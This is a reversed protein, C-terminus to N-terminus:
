KSSEVLASLREEIEEPSPLYKKVEEPLQRSIKYTSVGIPKNSDRLAYEVITRKKSKCIIIGISPNEEDLKIKDDLVSLYFQMQGAYAPKFKGIKLEIAVLCQLKRHFLLLDIFFEEGEM